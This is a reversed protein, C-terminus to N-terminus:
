APLFAAAVLPCSVYTPLFFFLYFSFSPEVNKIARVKDRSRDCEYKSLLYSVETRDNQMTAGGLVIIPLRCTQWFVFFDGVYAFVNKVSGTKKTEAGSPALEV